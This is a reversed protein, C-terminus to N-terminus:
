LEALELEFGIVVAWPKVVVGGDAAM